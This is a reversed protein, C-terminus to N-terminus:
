HANMQAADDFRKNPVTLSIECDRPPTPMEADQGKAKAMGYAKIKEQFEAQLEAHNPKPWTVRSTSYRGQVSSSAAIEADGVEFHSRALSETLLESADFGDGQESGNSSSPKSDSDDGCGVLLLCFISVALTFARVPSRESFVFLKVMPRRLLCTWRLPPHVSRGRLIGYMSATKCGTPCLGLLAALPKSIRFRAKAGEQSGFLILYGPRDRAEISERRVAQM